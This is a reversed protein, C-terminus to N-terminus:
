SQKRVLDLVRLLAEKNSTWDSAWRKITEVEIYTVGQGEFYNKIWGTNPYENKSIDKYGSRESYVGAIKKGKDDKTGLVTGARNHFDLIVEINEKELFDKLAKTEPESFPKEGGSVEIKRSGFEWIGKNVWDKTDFNRNLDVNNNNTRGVLGGNFYDPRKIAEKYGDVNLVPIFYATIGELLDEKSSLYGILRYVLKCTGVENGHVGGIFLIKTKGNGLKYLEIPLGSASKALVESRIKPKESKEINEIIGFIGRISIKLQSIM